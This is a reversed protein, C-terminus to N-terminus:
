GYQFHHVRLPRLSTDFVHNYHENTQSQFTLAALVKVWLGSSRGGGLERISSTLAVCASLSDSVASPFAYPALILPQTTPSVGASTLHRPDSGIPLPAPDNVAWIILPEFRRCSSGGVPKVV